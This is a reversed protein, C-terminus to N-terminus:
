VHARGIETVRELHLVSRIVLEIIISDDHGASTHRSLVNDDALCCGDGWICFFEALACFKVHLTIDGRGEAAGFITDDVLDEEGRVDFAEFEDLDASACGFDRLDTVLEGGAVTLFSGDADGVALFVHGEGGGAECGVDDDVRVGDGGAHGDGM